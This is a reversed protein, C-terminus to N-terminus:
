KGWGTQKTRFIQLPIKRGRDVVRNPCNESCSCASHCEYIPMRSHLMKSKLMGAKQGHAHYAYAKVRQGAGDLAEADEEDDDEEVHEQLCLCERYQCDEDDACDCGVRFSDEAAKVGRGLVVNEIFRFNPPIVYVDVENVITIPYDEHTAFSRIQCWHCKVKEDEFGQHLHNAPQLREYM